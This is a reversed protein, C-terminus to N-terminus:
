MEITQLKALEENREDVLDALRHFLAKKESAPTKKWSLYAEHAQQIVQELEDNSLREFTANVEQTYPNRSIISSM